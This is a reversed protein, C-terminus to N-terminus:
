FFVEVCGDFNPMYEFAGSEEPPVLEACFTYGGRKGCAPCYSYGTTMVMLSGCSCYIKM